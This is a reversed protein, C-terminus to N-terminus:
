VKYDFLLLPDFKIGDNDTVTFHLHPGTSKGTNGTLAITSGQKASSGNAFISNSHLHAFGYRLGSIGKFILQKGGAENSYVNVITGDEPAVVPTGSVASLDIGNHGSKVGTIPHIREGFKSTVRNSLPIPPILKLEIMNIKKKSFKVFLLIIAAVSVLSIIVYKKM